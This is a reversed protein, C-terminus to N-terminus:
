WFDYGLDKKFSAYVESFFTEDFIIKASADVDVNTEGMEKFINLLKIEPIDKLMDNCMYCRTELAEYCRLQNELYMSYHEITFKSSFMHKVWRHSEAERHIGDLMVKLKQRSM